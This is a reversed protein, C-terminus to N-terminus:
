KGHNERNETSKELGFRFNFLLVTRQKVLEWMIGVGLLGFFLSFLILLMTPGTGSGDHLHIGTVFGVGSAGVVVSLVTAIVHTPIIM